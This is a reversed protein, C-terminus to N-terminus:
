GGGPAPGAAGTERRWIELFRQVSGPAFGAFHNNFYAFVDLGRGLLERAAAVGEATEATRDVLLEDWDRRKGRERRAARALADMRKHDGLFRLYAFGGTALREGFRDLLRRPSPMTFYLVLALAAEHARLLDLLPGDVWKENRIEVVHRRGRPLLPLFTALRRRFDDGTAYEHADKGKAVYPFQLLVPGLKRELPALLDLYRRWDDACDVLYRDHTVARPAKLSFTFGDPAKRAWGEVTARSPLAHWTADIEVTDFVGAYRSLYDAPATGPPYFPGVWDDCSFSSTGLRLGRPLGGLDLEFMPTRVGRESFPALTAHPRDGM